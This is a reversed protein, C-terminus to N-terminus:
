MILFWNVHFFFILWFSIRYGTYPSGCALFSIVINVLCLKKRRKKEPDLLAGVNIVVVQYGGVVFQAMNLIVQLVPVASSSVWSEVLGYTIGHWQRYIRRLVQLLDTQQFINAVVCTPCYLVSFLPSISFRPTCPSVKSPAPSLPPLLSCNTAWKELSHVLSRLFWSASSTAEPSAPAQSIPRCFAQAIRLVPALASWQQFSWAHFCSSALSIRHSTSKWSCVFHLVLVFIAAVELNHTEHQFIRM